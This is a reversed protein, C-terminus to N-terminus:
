ARAKTFSLHTGCRCAPHLPAGMVQTGDQAVFPEDFPVAKGDLWSCRPCTREGPAASWVRRTRGPQILGKEAAQQWAALQGQNAAAIGETRAILLARQRLLKAAYRQVSAELGGALAKAKEVTLGLDRAGKYLLSARYNMVAQAQRETIGILPRILRGAARPAIGDAFSRQILARIGAKTEASVRTVMAAATQRAAEAALPNQIDFRMTVRPLAAATAQGARAWVETVVDAADSLAASVPHELIARVAASLNGAKLAAQLGAGNVGSQLLAVAALFARALQPELRAAIQDITPHIPM